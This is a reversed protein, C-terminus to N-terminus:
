NKDQPKKLIEVLDKCKEYEEFYELSKICGAIEKKSKIKGKVIKSYTEIIGNYKQIEEKKM